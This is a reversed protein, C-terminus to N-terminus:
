PRWNETGFNVKDWPYGKYKSWVDEGLSTALVSVIDTARAFASNLPESLEAQSIFYNSELAGSHFGDEEYMYIKGNENLAVFEWGQDGNSYHEDTKNLDIWEQFQQIEILTDLYSFSFLEAKEPNHIKLWVWFMHSYQSYEIKHRVAVSVVEQYYRILKEINGTLELTSIEDPYLREIEPLTLQVEHDDLFNNGDCLQFYIDIEPNNLEVARAKLQEDM